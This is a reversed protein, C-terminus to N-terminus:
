GKRFNELAQILSLMDEPVDERKMADLIRSPTLAKEGAQQLRQNLSSLFDKGPVLKVQTEIMKWKARFRRLSEQHLTASDQGTKKQFEAHRATYQSLVADELENMAAILLSATLQSNKVARALADPIILYNEIEKREHIFVEPVHRAIETRIAFIEEDCRYDRDLIVFLGISEGIAQCFAFKMSEIRSWGSLGGIPIFIIDDGNALDAYGLKRALSRLLKADSGEVFCVKRSRALRSLVINHSSGLVDLARQVQLPQRIRRGTKQGKDVIVIENPEAESLLESSHTALIIKPGASRFLHMLQRQVAPHLYIEPEDVILISSNKARTIHTLLQCWVQFGFGAWFLERHHRDEECMMYLVSGDGGYDIYPKSITIGPWSTHLALSFKEFDDSNQYWFNRFHSSARHSNLGRRITSPEVLREHAEVPGLTPIHDVTTPFHSKFMTPTNIPRDCGHAYFVCGGDAPFYIRLSTNNSFGFSLSTAIDLLNTHINGTTTPMDNLNISYGRVTGDPGQLLEPKRNRAISLGSALLRFASLITSKGCNNPGVLVTMDRIDIRFEEFAKFRSLHLSTLTVDHQM